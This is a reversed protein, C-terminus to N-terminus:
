KPVIEVTKPGFFILSWTQAPGATETATQELRLAVKVLFQWRQGSGTKKKRLHTNATKKKM